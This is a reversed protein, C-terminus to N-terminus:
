LVHPGRLIDFVDLGKEAKAIEILLEDLIKDYNYVRKIGQKM